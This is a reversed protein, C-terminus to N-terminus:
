CRTFSMGLVTLSDNPLKPLCSSSPTLYKCIKCHFVATKWAKWTRKENEYMEFSNENMWRRSIGQKATTHAVYSSWAAWVLKIGAYNTFTKCAVRSPFLQPIPFFGLIVSVRIKMKLYCEWQRGQKLQRNVWISPFSSWNVSLSRDKRKSFGFMVIFCVLARVLFLVQSTKKPSQPLCGRCQCSSYWRKTVDRAATWKAWTVFGWAMKEAKRRKTRKNRRCVVECIWYRRSFFASVYAPSPNSSATLELTVFATHVNWTWAFM